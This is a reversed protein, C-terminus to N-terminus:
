NESIPVIGRIIPVWSSGGEITTQLQVRLKDGTFGQVDLRTRKQNLFNLSTIDTLSTTSNGGGTSIDEGKGYITVSIKDGAIAPPEDYYIDLATLNGLPMWQSLYFISQYVTGSAPYYWITSNGGGVYLNAYILGDYGVVIQDFIKGYSFIYEFPGAEEKGYAVLPTVLSGSNSPTDNLKIGLYNKFDFLSIPVPSYTASNINSVQTTFVKKLKTGALYFISTKGSAVKVAVYLVTDVVKMDIFQGPVKVSYNYRDSIGDWLFIYNQSYGNVLGGPAVQGAAIALYKNNYNRLMMVGWGKGIDIGASLLFSTTDLKRVLNPQTFSGTGDLIAVYDLFPEMIHAGVNINITGFGTWSGSPLPMRFVQTNSSWNAFLFNNACVLRGGANPVSGGSPYGLDTITTTNIGYVHTTDTIIYISFTGETSPVAHVVNGDLVVGSIQLWDLAAALPGVQQEQVGSGNLYYLPDAGAIMFHQNRAAYNPVQPTMRLFNELINKKAM